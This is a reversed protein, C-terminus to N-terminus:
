QHQLAKVLRQMGGLMDDSRVGTYGMILGQQLPKGLYYRSLPVVDVGNLAARLAVQRDDEGRKLFAAIHMGADTVELTLSDACYEQVLKVFQLRRENYLKRMRRIHRVFHGQTIFEALAAQSTMPTQLDIVYKAATFADVLGPPVILYGLRLTPFLVKSLTGIYVVRSHTDLGQLAPIPYGRYRYESDYDDEVIWSKHEAAWQLLQLRTSISMTYGLPFQHSPTVIALRANSAKRNGAEVDIGNSNVPVPILKAGVSQLAKRAGLYGPEEVWASDGSDLLVQVTIFLGQQSGSTVIIQEAQCQIGRATHVYQALAEQLPRYGAPDHADDNFLSIPAYRYQKNVLRAWIEFPFEDLAPVGHAFAHHAHYHREEQPLLTLIQKGRESLDNSPTNSRSPQEATTETTLFGEPLPSSVYIGSRPRTELYGEVILQNLATNITNRSVGFLEALDRSSPLCLNPALLGSLIAEQLGQAIQQYLTQKLQPDLRIAGLLFSKSIKKMRIMMIFSKCSHRMKYVRVQCYVKGVCYNPFYRM